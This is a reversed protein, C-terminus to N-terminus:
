EWAMSSISVARTGHSNAAGHKRQANACAVGGQQVPPMHESRGEQLASVATAAPGTGQMAHGSHPYRPTYHQSYLFFCAIALGTRGLGAHCHVAVKRGETGTVYDMVQM